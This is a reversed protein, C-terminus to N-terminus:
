NKELIVTNSFHPPMENNIQSRHTTAALSSATSTTNPTGNNTATVPTASTSTTAIHRLYHDKISQLAM